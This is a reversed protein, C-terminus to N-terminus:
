APATTLVSNGSSEPKLGKNEKYMYALVWFAFSLALLGGTLFPSIAVAGVVGVIGLVGWAVTAVNWILNLIGLRRKEREREKLEESGAADIGCQASIIESVADASGIGSVILSAGFGAMKFVPALNGLSIWNVSHAWELANAAVGGCFTSDIFVKKACATIKQAKEPDSPDLSIANYLDKIRTVLVIAGVGGLVGWAAAMYGNFIKNFMEPLETIEKGLLLSSSPPADSILNRQVIQGIRSDADVSCNAIECNKLVPACPSISQIM